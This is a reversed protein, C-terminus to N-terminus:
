GAGGSVTAVPVATAVNRAALGGLVRDATTTGRMGGATEMVDM